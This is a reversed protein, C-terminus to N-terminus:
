PPSGKWKRPKWLPTRGKVRDDLATRLRWYFLLPKEITRSYRASGYGYQHMLSGILLDFMRVERASLVEKWANARSRDIPELAKIKWPERNADFNKPRRADYDLMREDYEVGLFACLELLTGEPNSLLSEYPLELYDSPFMEHFTASARMHLLWALCHAGVEVSGQSRNDPWAVRHSVLVARPDRVVHIIKAGPFMAKLTPVYFLHRPTKEGWISKGYNEADLSLLNVFFERGTPLSQPVAGGGLIEENFGFEPQVVERFYRNLFKRSLQQTMVRETLATNYKLLQKPWVPTKLLYELFHTEPSIRISPHGNLLMALLTTGSRPMGVVFILSRM